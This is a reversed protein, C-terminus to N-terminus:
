RVGMSPLVMIAADFNVPSGNPNKTRHISSLEVWSRVCSHWTAQLSPEVAEFVKEHSGPRLFTVSMPSISAKTSILLGLCVRM